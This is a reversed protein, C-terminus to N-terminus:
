KTKGEIRQDGYRPVDGFMDELDPDAKLVARTVENNALYYVLEDDTLSTKKLLGDIDDAMILITKAMDRKDWSSIEKNM